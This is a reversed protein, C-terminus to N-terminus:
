ISHWSRHLFAFRVLNPDHACFAAFNNMWALKEFAPFSLNVAPNAEQWCIIPKWLTIIPLTCLGDIASVLMTRHWFADLRTAKTHETFWERCAQIGDMPWQNLKSDLRRIARSRIRQCKRSTPALETSETSQQLSPIAM